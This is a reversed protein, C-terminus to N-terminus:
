APPTAALQERLWDHFLADMREGLDVVPRFPSGTPLADLREATAALAAREEEVHALEREFVVRRDAPPLLFVLFYRLATESRQHRNPVSELQWRRLEGRGADTAAWTRSGRAGEAVVEAFGDKELRALEPYIQSHSAHWATRLSLEFRQTLEYGTSPEIVLLGLLAHRLSMTVAYGSNSM